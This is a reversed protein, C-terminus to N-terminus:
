ARLSQRDAILHKGAVEIIAVRQGLRQRCQIPTMGLGPERQHRIGVHEAASVSLRQLLPFGRIDQASPKLGTGLRELRLDQVHGGEPIQGQVSPATQDDGMRRAPSALMRVVTGAVDLLQLLAGRRGREARRAGDAKQIKRVSADDEVFVLNSLDGGLIAQAAKNGPATIRLIGAVQSSM